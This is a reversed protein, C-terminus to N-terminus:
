CSEQSVLYQLSEWADKIDLVVVPNYKTTMGNGLSYLLISWEGKHPVSSEDKALELSDYKIKFSIQYTTDGNMIGTYQQIFWASAETVEIPNMIHAVSLDNFAYPFLEIIDLCEQYNGARELSILSRRSYKFDCPHQVKQCIQSSEQYDANPWFPFSTCEELSTPDGKLEITSKAGLNGELYERVRIEHATNCNSTDVFYQLRIDSAVASDQLSYFSSLNDFKRMWSNMFSDRNEWNDFHLPIQFETAFHIVTNEPEQVNDMTNIGYYLVGVAIVVCFMILMGLLVFWVPHGVNQRIKRNGEGGDPIPFYGADVSSEMEIGDCSTSLDM